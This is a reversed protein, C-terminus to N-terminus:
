DGTLKALAQRVQAKASQAASAMEDLEQLAPDLLDALGSRQRAQEVRVLTIRQVYEIRVLAATASELSERMSVVDGTHGSSRSM